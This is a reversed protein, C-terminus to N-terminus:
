LAEGLLGHPDQGIGGVVVDLDEENLAEPDEPDKIDDTM